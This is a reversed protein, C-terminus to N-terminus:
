CGFCKRHFGVVVGGAVFYVCGEDEVVFGDVVGLVGLCVSVYLGGGEDPVVVVEDLEFEGHWSVVGCAVCVVDEVREAFVCPAWGM